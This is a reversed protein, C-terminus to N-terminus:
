TSYFIFIFSLNAILQWSALFGKFVTKLGKKGKHHQPFAETFLFKVHLLEHQINFNTIRRILIYKGLQLNWMLLNWDRALVAFIHFQINTTSNLFATNHASSIQLIIQSVPFYFDVGISSNM